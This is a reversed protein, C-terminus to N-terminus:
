NRNTLLITSILKTHQLSQETTLYMLQEELLEELPGLNLEWCGYRYSLDEIVGTVPSRIGRRAKLHVLCLCPACVYM